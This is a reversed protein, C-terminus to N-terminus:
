TSEPGVTVVVLGDIGILFTMTPQDCKPAVEIANKFVEIETQRALRINFTSESSCISVGKSTFEMLNMRLGADRGIQLAETRDRAEFALTPRGEIELVFIAGIGDRGSM